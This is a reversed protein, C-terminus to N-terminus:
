KSIAVLQLEPMQIINHLFIAMIDLGTTKGPLWLIATKVFQFWPYNHYSNVTDINIQFNNGIPTADYAFQQGYIDYEDNRDDVWCVTFNGDLDASVSPSRQDSDPFDDNLKFNGGNTTGDSMYRQAYVDWDGDREDCWAIM